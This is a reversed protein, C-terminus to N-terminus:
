INRINIDFTERPDIISMDPNPQAALHYVIDIDKVIARVEKYDRIDVKAFRIRGGYKKFLYYITEKTTSGDPRSLLVVKSNKENELIYETLHGGIFGTGGTILVRTM